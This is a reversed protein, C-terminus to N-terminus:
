LPILNGGWEHAAAEDLELFPKREWLEIGEIVRLLFALRRQLLRGPRIAEATRATFALFMSIDIASTVLAIRTAVMAAM